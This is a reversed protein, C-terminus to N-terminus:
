IFSIFINNFEYLDNENKNFITIEGGFYHNDAIIDENYYFELGFNLKYTAVFANPLNAPDWEEIDIILEQMYFVAEGQYSKATHLTGLLTNTSEIDLNTNLMTRLLNTAGDAIIINTTGLVINAVVSGGATVVTLVLSTTTVTRNIIIDNKNNQNIIKDKYDNVVYYLSDIFEKDWVYLERTIYQHDLGLTDQYVSPPNFLSLTQKNPSYAVGGKGFFVVRLVLSVTACVCITQPFM